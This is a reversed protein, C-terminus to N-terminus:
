AAREPQFSSTSELEGDDIPPKSSTVNRTFPGSAHDRSFCSPPGWRTCRTGTVSLAPRTCVDDAVTV